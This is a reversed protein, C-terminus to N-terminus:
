FGHPTTPVNSVPESRWLIDLAENQLADNRYSGRPIFPMPIEVWEFFALHTM